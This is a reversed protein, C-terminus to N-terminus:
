LPDAHSELIGELLYSDLVTSWVLAAGASSDRRADADVKAISEGQEENGRRGGAISIDPRAAKRM